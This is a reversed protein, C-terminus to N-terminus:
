KARFELVGDFGKPVGYDLNDLVHRALFRAIPDDPRSGGMLARYAEQMEGRTFHLSAREYCEVEDASLGSGGMERPLILEHLECAEGLGAPRVLGIRRTDVSNDLERHTESNMLIPVRFFKTLGELRSALNVTPGLVGFKTQERAGVQGAIVEGTAIGIGCRMGGLGDGKFPLPMESICRVIARAARVAKDAQCNECLAGWCAMVADGQYDVVVGGEAFVCDTVATMVDTLTNHHALINGLGDDAKETAKSFGRLDFFMVTVRRRQPHLVQGWDQGALSTRLAPSFFKVVQGEIRNFRAVALHHGLTEAVIDILSALGDLHEKQLQAEEETLASLASGVVYLGFREGDAVEIPSAMAWDAHAHSTMMEQVQSLDAKAWVHTVTSSLDFARDLLTRSPPTSHVRDSSIEQCMVQIERGGFKLVAFESAEPVLGKLVRLASRFASAQDTCTRLEPLIDVLARFCQSINPRLINQFQLRSLTFETTPIEASASNALQLIFRSKGSIFSQGPELQFCECEQGQFFIPNKASSAKKVTLKGGSWEIDFHHRSILPDERVALHRARKMGDDRGVSYAREMLLFDQHHDGPGAVKLVPYRSM